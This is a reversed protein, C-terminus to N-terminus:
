RTVPDSIDVMMMVVCLILTNLSVVVGKFLWFLQMVIAIPEIKVFNSLPLMATGIADLVLFGVLFPKRGYIGAYRGIITFM